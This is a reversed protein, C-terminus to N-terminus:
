SSLNGCVPSPPIPKPYNLCVVDMTCKIELRIELRVIQCSTSTGAWLNPVGEELEGSQYGSDDFCQCTHSIIINSIWQVLFSFMKFLICHQFYLFNRPFVALSRIYNQFTLQFHPVHNFSGLPVARRSRFYLVFYQFFSLNIHLFFNGANYATIILPFFFSVM